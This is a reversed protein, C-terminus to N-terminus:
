RRGRRGRSSRRRCRPRRRAGTRPMMGLDLLEALGLLHAVLDREAGVPLGGFGEGGEVGRRWSLSSLLFAWHRATVLVIAPSPFDKM